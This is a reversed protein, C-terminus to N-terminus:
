IIVKYKLQGNNIVVDWYHRTSLLVFHLSMRSRPIFDSHSAPLANWDSLWKTYCDGLSPNRYGDKRTSVKAYGGEDTGSVLRWYSVM